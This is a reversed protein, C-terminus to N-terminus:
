WFFFKTDFTEEKELIASKINFYYFKNNNQENHYQFRRLFVWWQYKKFIDERQFYDDYNWHDRNSFEIELCVQKSSANSLLLCM